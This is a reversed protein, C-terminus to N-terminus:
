RQSRQELSHAKQDLWSLFSPSCASKLGVRSVWKGDVIDLDGSANDGGRVLRVPIERAPRIGYAEFIDDQERQLRAVHPNLLEGKEDVLSQDVTFAFRVLARNFFEPSVKALTDAYFKKLGEPSRVAYKEVPGCYGIWFTAGASNTFSKADPSWDRSIINLATSDVLWWPSKPAGGPRIAVVVHGDFKNLLSHLSMAASDILLADYGRAHIREAFVAAFDGCGCSLKSAAIEDATRRRLFDDAVGTLTEGRAMLTYTQRQDMSKLTRLEAFVAQVDGDVAKDAATAAAATAALVFAFLTKM